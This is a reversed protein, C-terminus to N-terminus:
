TLKSSPIDMEMWKWAMFGMFRSNEYTQPRIGGTEIRTEEVARLAEGGTCHPMRPLDPFFHPHWPSIVYFDM